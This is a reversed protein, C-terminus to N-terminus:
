ELKRKLYKLEALRLFKRESPSLKRYKRILEETDLEIDKKKARKLKRLFEKNKFTHGELEKQYKKIALNLLRIRKKNSMFNESIRVMRNVFKLDGVCTNFIKKAEKQLIKEIKKLPDAKFLNNNKFNLNKQIANDYLDVFDKILSCFTKDLFNNKHSNYFQLRYKIHKAQIVEDRYFVSTAKKVKASSSLDYEDIRFEQSNFKKYLSHLEEQDLSQNNLKSIVERSVGYSVNIKTDKSFTSNM